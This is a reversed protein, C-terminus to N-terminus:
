QIYVIVSFPMSAMSRSYIAVAKKEWNYEYNTNQKTAKGMRLRCFSESLLKQEAFSDGNKRKPFFAKILSITLPDHQTADFRAYSETSICIQEVACCAREDLLM